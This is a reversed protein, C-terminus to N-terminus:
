IEFGNHETFFAILSICPIVLMLIYVRQKFPSLEEFPKKATIIELRCFAYVILVM